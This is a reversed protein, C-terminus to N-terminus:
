ANFVICDHDFDSSHHEKLHDYIIKQGEITDYDAGGSKLVCVNRDTYCKFRSDPQSIPGWLPHDHNWFQLVRRQNRKGHRQELHKMLGTVTSWTSVCTRGNENLARCRIPRRPTVRRRQTPRPSPTHGLTFGILPTGIPEAPGSRRTLKHIRSASQVRRRCLPCNHKLVIWQALCHYHSVFACDCPTTCKDNEIDDFCIICSSTPKDHLHIDRPIVLEEKAKNDDEFAIPTHSEPLVEVVPETEDLVIVETTTEPTTDEGESLGLKIEVQDLAHEDYDHTYLRDQTTHRVLDFVIKGEVTFKDGVPSNSNCKNMLAAAVTGLEDGFIGIRHYCFDCRQTGECQCVHMNPNLDKLSWTVRGDTTEGVEFEMTLLTDATYRVPESSPDM